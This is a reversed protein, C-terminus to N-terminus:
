GAEYPSTLRINVIATRSESTINRRHRRGDLRDLAGGRDQPQQRSALAPEAHRLDRALQVQGLPGHVPDQPREGADAEHLLVLLGALVLKLAM